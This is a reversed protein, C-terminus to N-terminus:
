SKTRTNSSCTKCCGVQVKVMEVIIKPIEVNPIKGVKLLAAEGWGIMGRDRPSMKFHEYNFLLKM